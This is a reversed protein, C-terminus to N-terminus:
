VVHLAEFTRGTVRQLRELVFRYKCALSTLVSRVIEGPESLPSQAGARCAERLRAPMDGPELLAEDDPDFLAVNADTAEAMAMLEEYDATIGARTWARR